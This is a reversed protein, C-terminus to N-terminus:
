KQGVYLFKMGNREYIIRMNGLRAERKLFARLEGDTPMARRLPSKPKGSTDLGRGAAREKNDKEIATRVMSMIQAVDLPRDVYKITDSVIQHLQKKKKVIDEWGM